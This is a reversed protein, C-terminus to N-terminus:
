QDKPIIGAAILNIYATYGCDSVLMAQPYPYAGLGVGRGNVISPSVVHDPITWNRSLCMPCDIGNPRKGKIWDVLAQKESHSLTGNLDPM